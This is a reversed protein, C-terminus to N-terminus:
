NSKKITKKISKPSYEGCFGVFEDVEGFAAIENAIMLAM